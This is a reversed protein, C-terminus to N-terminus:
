HCNILLSLQNKGTGAWLKGQELRTQNVLIRNKGLCEIVFFGRPPLGDSGAGKIKDIDDADESGKKYVLSKTKKDWEATAGSADRYSIMCHKRSIAKRKGLGFFNEDEETDHSRGITAPLKTLPIKVREHSGTGPDEHIGDLLCFSPTESTGGLTIEGDDSM